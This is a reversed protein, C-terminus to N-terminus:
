RGKLPVDIHFTMDPHAFLLKESAILHSDFVALLSDCPTDIHKSYSEFIKKEGNIYFPTQIRTNMFHLLYRGSFQQNYIFCQKKIDPISCQYSILLTNACM